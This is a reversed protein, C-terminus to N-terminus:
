LLAQAIPLARRRLWSAALMAAPLAVLCYSLWAGFRGDPGYPETWLHWAANDIFPIAQAETFEHFAYVALQVAFVAMFLTTARFLLSLNIARGFRVWALAVAGAAAIGAIGAGFMDGPTSSGAMSALMTAAEIGERVVMLFSFLFVAVKASVRADSPLGELRGRLKEVVRPGNRHMQLACAGVLALAALALLGEHLARMAGVKALAIGAAASVLLAAAVAAHVAGSLGVRGAQRLYLQVVAIVLFAEVGERFTVMFVAIMECELSNRYHSDNDNTTFVLDVIVRPHAPDGPSAGTVGAASPSAAFCPGPMKGSRQRGPEPQNRIGGAEVHRCQRPLAEVDPQQLAQRAAGVDAQIRQPVEVMVARRLRAQEEAVAGDFREVDAGCQQPHAVDQLLHSLPVQAIIRHETEGAHRMDTTHMDVCFGCGNIQSARLKILELLSKELGLKSVAVELAILAKMADPSATYFDTRQSM